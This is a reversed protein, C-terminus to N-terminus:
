FNHSKGDSQKGKSIFEHEMTWLNTNPPSVVEQPLTLAHKDRISILTSDLKKEVNDMAKTLDSNKLDSELNEFDISKLNSYTLLRRPLEPKTFLITVVITQSIIKYSM